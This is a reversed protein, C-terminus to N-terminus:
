FSMDFNNKKKEKMLANRELLSLFTGKLLTIAKFFRNCFLM